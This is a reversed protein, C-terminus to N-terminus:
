EVLRLSGELLARRHLARDHLLLADFLLDDLLDRLLILPESRNDVLLSFLSELRDLVQIADLLICRRGFIESLICQCVQTRKYLVQLALDFLLLLQRLFLVEEGDQPESVLDFAQLVLSLCELALNSQM